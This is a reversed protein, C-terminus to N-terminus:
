NTSGMSTFLSGWDASMGEIDKRVDAASTYIARWCKTIITGVPGLSDTEPFEGNQILTQIEDDHGQDLLDQYPNVGTMLHYLVSGLAFLDAPISQRPGPYRHSANAIVLLPSGDLSSGGFDALKANLNDTLFVNNLTLDGHIVKSTHAYYLADTIQYGWHLRQEGDVEPHKNLYSSLNWKPAYELRIGSDYQGYYKLLGHHGGRQKFREYIAKEVAIRDETDQDHATKIVTQSAKDLCVMGTTGWGVIDNSDFGTAYRICYAM